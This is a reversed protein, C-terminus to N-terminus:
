ANVPRRHATAHTSVRGDRTRSVPRQCSSVPESLVNERVRSYDSATARGSFPFLSSSALYHALLFAFLSLSVFMTHVADMPNRLSVSVGPFLPAPSFRPIPSLYPFGALKCPEPCFDSPIKNSRSVRIFEGSEVAGPLRTSLIRGNSRLTRVVRSFLSLRTGPSREALVCRLPWQIGGGTQSPAVLHGTFVM